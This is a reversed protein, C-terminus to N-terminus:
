IMYDLWNQYYDSIEEAVIAIEKEMRDLERSDFEREYSQYKGTIVVKAENHLGKCEEEEVTTEIWDIYARKPTVGYKARIATAYLLLQESKQAKTVSWPKKGTKKDRFETYDAKCDDLYCLIPVGGIEVRIEHERLEFVPLGSLLEHHQDEEIMQAIQKGLTLYKTSLKAGGELYEKRFREKNQKFCTIASHSLYGKPLIM